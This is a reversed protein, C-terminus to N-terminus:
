RRKSSGKMFFMVMIGAGTLWMWTPMGAFKKPLDFGLMSSLDSSPVTSGAQPQQSQEAKLRNIYDVGAKQGEPIGYKARAKAKSKEGALGYLGNIM